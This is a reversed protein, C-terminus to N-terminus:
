SEAGSSSIGARRRALCDAIGERLAFRPQWGLAHLMSVDATSEMIEQPRYPLAGFLPRTRAGSVLEVMEVFDRVSTAVGTGVGIRQWTALREPHNLLAIYAAAVDEVHVFDRKQHGPTMEFTQDGRLFADMVAACFKGKPEFPGYPHELVTDVLRAGSINSLLRRAADSFVQKSLRYDPLYPYDSPARSFYTDTNIVLEVGARASTALLRLPQVVNAAYVDAPNGSHGYETALHLLASADRCDSEGVHCWQIWEVHPYRARAAGADRTVGLVQWGASCLQKLLAGGVFGTAGTVIARRVPTNDM